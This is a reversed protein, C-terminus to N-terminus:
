IKGIFGLCPIDTQNELNLVKVLHTVHLCSHAFIALYDGMIFWPRDAQLSSCHRAMILFVFARSIGMIIQVFSTKQKSKIIIIEQTKIDHM